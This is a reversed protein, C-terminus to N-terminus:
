DHPIRCFDIWTYCARDEYQNMLLHSALLKAPDVDPEVRHPSLEWDFLFPLQLALLRSKGSGTNGRLLLRGREFWFEQNEYKYLNILGSRLPQFRELVPEPLMTKM